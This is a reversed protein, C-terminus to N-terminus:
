FAYFQLGRISLLFQGLCSNFFLYIGHQQFLLHCTTEFFFLLSQLCMQCDFSGNMGLSAFTSIGLSIRFLGGVFAPVSVTDPSFLVLFGVASELFCVSGPGCAVRGAGNASHLFLLATM